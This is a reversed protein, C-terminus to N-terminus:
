SILKLIRYFLFASVPLVAGVLVLRRSGHVAVEERFSRLGLPLLAAVIISRYREHIIGSLGLAILGLVLVGFLISRNRTWSQSGFLVLIITLAASSCVAASLWIM